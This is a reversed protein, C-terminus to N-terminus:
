LKVFEKILLRGEKEFLITYIGSKLVSVPIQNTPPNTTFNLVQQGLINYVQIQDFTIESNFHLTNEVPNPYIEISLSDSDSPVDENIDTLGDEEFPDKMFHIEENPELALLATFDTLLNHEISLNVIGLTDLTESNFMDKLEENALLSPILIEYKTSDHSFM